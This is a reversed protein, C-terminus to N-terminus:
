LWAASADGGAAAAATRRRILQALYGDVTQSSLRGDLASPVSGPAWGASAPGPAPYRDVAPFAPRRFGRVSASGPRTTKLVASRWRLPSVWLVWFDASFARLSCVISGGDNCAICINWIPIMDLNSSSPVRGPGRAFNSSSQIESDIM